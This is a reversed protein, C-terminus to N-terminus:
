GEGLHDRPRVRTGRENRYTVQGPGAGRIKRLYRLQTYIVEVADSERAASHYAATEAALRLTEVSPERGGTRAIVHGGPIERAHFWWDDPSAADLVRANQAASKGVLIRTGDPATLFATKPAPPKRMSVTGEPAERIVGAEVAEARLQSLETHGRALNAFTRYEEIRDLEQRGQEILAPLDEGARKRRKYADFLKQANESASLTRDLDITRDELELRDAGPELAYSYALILQGDEMLRQAMEAGAEQRQLSDLRQKVRDARKDLAALIQTRLQGHSVVQALSGSYVEIAHSMSEYSVLDAEARLHTLEYPAYAVAGQDATAVCPQWDRTAWLSAMRRVEAALPAWETWEGATVEAKGAARFVIERAALPSLGSVGSVLVRWLPTAPKAGEACAMLWDPATRHPEVGERPPPPTYERRPMVPRVSSMRPTVRKVSELITSRSSDLMILNSHRGMLEAQLWVNTNNGEVRKAISLAIIREGAPQEIEEMVGDLVHKRLLLGLPTVLGPESTPREWVLMARPHEPETTLLLQHRQRRAYVELALSGSGPLSVKQIFGGLVSSRLEDSIAAATLADFYM